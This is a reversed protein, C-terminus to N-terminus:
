LLRLFAEILDALREGHSSANTLVEEHSIPGDSLGAAHNTVCSVAACELGLAHARLAERTTSMGVADAGCVKLARIEAPTEYSPGTVAGYIGQFLPVGVVVAAEELLQLLRPSYPSPQSPGIGGLGPSRWAYPRNWEFHDRIALFSGPPLDDRIGGSANTLLVHRVGLQAALQVSMEVQPWSHGEYFHLRGEFVLLRKGAWDGLTLFGRHNEVSPLALGPVQSYPVSQCVQLRSVMAALGSGLVIAMEPRREAVATAFGADIQVASTADAAAPTARKAM